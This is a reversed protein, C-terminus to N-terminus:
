PDPVITDKSQEVEAPTVHDFEESQTSPRPSASDNVRDTGELNETMSTAEAEVTSQSISAPTVDVTTSITQTIEAEVLRQKM